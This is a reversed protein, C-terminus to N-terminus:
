PRAVSLAILGFILGGSVVGFWFGVWFMRREQVADSMAAAKRPSGARTMWLTLRM